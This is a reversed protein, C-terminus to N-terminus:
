IILRSLALQRFFFNRNKMFFSAKKPFRLVESFLNFVRKEYPYIKRRRRGVRQGRRQTGNRRRRGVPRDQADPGPPHLCLRDRLPVRQGSDGTYLYDKGESSFWAKTLRGPFHQKFFIIAKLKYERRHDWWPLCPPRHPPCFLSYTDQFM